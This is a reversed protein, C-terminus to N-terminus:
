TSVPYLINNYYYDMMELINSYSFCTEICEVGNALVHIIYLLIVILIGSRIFFLQVTMIHMVKFDIPFLFPFFSLM